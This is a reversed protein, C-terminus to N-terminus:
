GVVFFASAARSFAYLCVILCVCGRVLADLCARAHVHECARLRARVRARIFVCAPACACVHVYGRCVTAPVACPNLHRTSVWPFGTAIM